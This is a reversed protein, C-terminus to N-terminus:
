VSLNEAIPNQPPRLERPLSELNAPDFVFGYTRRLEYPQTRNIPQEKHKGLIFLQEAKLSAKEREVYYDLKQKKHAVIAFNTLVLLLYLKM